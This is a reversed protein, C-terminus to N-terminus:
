GSLIGAIDFPDGMEKSLRRHPRLKLEFNNFSGFVSTHALSSLTRPVLPPLLLAKVHVSAAYPM